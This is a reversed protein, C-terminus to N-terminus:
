KRKNEELDYEYIYYPTDDNVYETKKAGIAELSRISSLNSTKVTFVPKTLGHELMSDRLLAFAKKSYRKGRYESNIHAGINGLYKESELLTYRVDMEGIIEKTGHLTILYRIMDPKKDDLVVHLNKIYLDIDDSTYKPALELFARNELRQLELKLDFLQRSYKDLEEQNVEQMDSIKQQVDKIKNNVDTIQKLLEM